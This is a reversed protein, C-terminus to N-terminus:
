PFMGPHGYEGTQPDFVIDDKQCYYCRLWVKIYEDFIKKENQYRSISNRKISVNMKKVLYVSIAFLILVAIFGIVFPNGIRLKVARDFIVFGGGFTLLIIIILITFLGLGKPSEPATLRPYLKQALTTIQITSINSVGVTPIFHGNAFTGATTTSTSNGQSTGSSVIGSIKYVHEESGCLPCVVNM